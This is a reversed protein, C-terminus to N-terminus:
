DGLLTHDERAPTLGLDLTAAAAAAGGGGHRDHPPKPHVSPQPYPNAVRTKAPQTTQSPTLLHSPPSLLDPPPMGGKVAALATATHPHHPYCSFSPQPRGTNPTPHRTPIPTSMGLPNLLTHKIVHTPLCSSSEAGSLHVLGTAPRFPLTKLNPFVPAPLTWSRHTKSDPAPPEGGPDHRVAHWEVEHLPHIFTGTIM